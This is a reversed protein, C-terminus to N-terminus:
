SAVEELAYTVFADAAASGSPFSQLVTFTRGPTESPAILDGRALQAVDRTLRLTPMVVVAVRGDAIEQEIPTERFVAQVTGTFSGSIAVPAGFVANLVGTMGDFVSPM